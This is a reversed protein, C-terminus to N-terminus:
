IRPGTYCETVRKSPNSELDTKHSRHHVFITESYKPRRRTIRMGGAAGDENMQDDDVSYLRSLRSVADNPVTFYCQPKRNVTLLKDAWLEVAARCQGSFINAAVRGIQLGHAGREVQPIRWSM